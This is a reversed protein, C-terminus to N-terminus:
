KFEETLYKWANAVFGRNRIQSAYRFGSDDTKNKEALKLFDVFDMSKLESTAHVTVGKERLTGAVIGNKNTYVVKKLYLLDAINGLGMQHRADFIAFDIQNLMKLYSKYPIQETLILVKNRFLKEALTTVQNRYPVRGYSMPLIIKIERDKFKSLLKLYYEHRLSANASHGILFWIEGPEKEVDWPSQVIEDIQDAWVDTPYPLLVAKTYIHQRRLETRDCESASIGIAELRRVKPKAKLEWQLIEGVARIKLRIGPYYSLRHTLDNGWTRWIIKRELKDDLGAATETRLFHIIIHKVYDSISRLLELECLHLQDVYFVNPYKSRDDPSTRNLIVVHDQACFVDSDNELFEVFGNSFYGTVSFVHAYVAKHDKLSDCIRSIDNKM